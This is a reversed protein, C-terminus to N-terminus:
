TEFHLARSSRGCGLLKIAKTSSGQLVGNDIMPMRTSMRKSATTSLSKSEFDAASTTQWGVCFFL